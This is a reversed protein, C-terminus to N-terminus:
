QLIIADVFSFVQGSGRGGRIRFKPSVRWKGGRFLETVSCQGTSEARAAGHRHMVVDQPDPM